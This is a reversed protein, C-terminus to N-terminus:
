FWWVPKEETISILTRGTFFMLCSSVGNHVLSDPFTWAGSSPFRWPSIGPLPPTQLLLSWLKKLYNTIWVQTLVTDGFVQTIIKSIRVILIFVKKTYLASPLCHKPETVNTSYHCYCKNQRCLTVNTDRWSTDGVNRVMQFHIQRLMGKRVLM